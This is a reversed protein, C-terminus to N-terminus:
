YILAHICKKHTRNETIGTTYTQLKIVSLATIHLYDHSTNLAFSLQYLPSVVFSLEHWPLSPLFFPSNIVPYVCYTHEDGEREEERGRGEGGGKGGGEGREREGREGEGSGEREGGGGGERERKREREKM